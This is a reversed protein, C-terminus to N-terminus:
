SRCANERHARTASAASAQQQKARFREIIRRRAKRTEEALHRWEDSKYYSVVLANISGGLVAPASNLVIRIPFGSQAARYAAAKRARLGPL